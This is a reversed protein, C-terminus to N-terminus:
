FAPFDVENVPSDFLCSARPVLNDSLLWCQFLGPASPVPHDEAFGGFIYFDDNLHKFMHFTM